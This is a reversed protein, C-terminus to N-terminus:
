TRQRARSATTAAELYDNRVLWDRVFPVTLKRKAALSARDLEDLLAMLHGMDRPARRILFGAAEEGLDLGRRRARKMMARQRQADSLFELQQVQGWALRSRLDPLQLALQDPPVRGAALLCGGGARVRDLLGVLQQEWRIQGAIADLGDLCILQLHSLGELMEPTEIDGLPIYAARRGREFARRCGAQLLHTKGTGVAGWLYIASAGEGEAAESLLRRLQGADPFVFSDFATYDQLHVGLSLQVPSQAASKKM